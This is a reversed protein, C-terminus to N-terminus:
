LHHVLTEPLLHTRNAAELECLCLRTLLALVYKEINKTNIMKFSM